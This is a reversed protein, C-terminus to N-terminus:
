ISLIEALDSIASDYPRKMGLAEELDFDVIESGKIGVARSGCGDRLLEV